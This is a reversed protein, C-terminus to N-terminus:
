RPLTLLRGRAQVDGGAAAKEYWQRAVAYNQPVGNGNEYLVGLNAMAAANGGAAAKEWWQRALAYDQPVGQGNVYLVGLKLMADTDGGAVGKEFWQRAIAYDQPVGDGNLYLFGLSAMAAANGGAAAKEYWQRAIAYDQPVGQGHVFLAGLNAMAVADGGAAAKEYWQRAIAYNQPVGQGNGYLIGLSTMAVADGGAAAKQWWQRAIAHDQPVGRGHEYLFGLSAMAAANGGVAAKEWWQRALAYDQPVGLADEYLAGLAFMASANEDAAAQEFSLRGAAYEKARVFKVGELYKEEPTIGFPTARAPDWIRVIGAQVQRSRNLFFFGGTSGDKSIDGAMPNQRQDSFIRIEQKLYSALEDVTVIGDGRSGDRNIPSSDALGSLGAFVKEFFVSGPGLTPNHWTVEKSGGATIAHAGPGRPVYTTPGFSRSLFTGGYCANLLVLVQHGADVVSEMLDRIIKLNLSNEKDEMNRASSLLIFGRTNDTIGHGSYAFLFRSRPSAKLRDPFYVELFYRLNEYSLDGDKLVVVEDFFEQDRLYAQLQRLDAAAAPLDQQLPPMNPYRTVGAILAFSRGVNQGTLGVLNLAKEPLSRNEAYRAFFRRYAQPVTQAHCQIGLLASLCLTLSPRM